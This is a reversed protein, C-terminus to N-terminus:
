PGSMWCSILTIVTHLVPYECGTKLTRAMATSVFNCNPCKAVLEWSLQLTKCECSQWKHDEKGAKLLCLRLPLQWSLDWTVPSDEMGTNRSVTRHRGQRPSGASVPVCQREKRTRATSVHVCRPRGKPERCQCTHVAVGEKGAGGQLQMCRYECCDRKGLERQRSYVPVAIPITPNTSSLLLIVHHWMKHSCWKAITIRTGIAMTVWPSCVHVYGYIIGPIRQISCPRAKYIFLASVFIIYYLYQRCNHLVAIRNWLFLVWTNKSKCITTHTHDWASQLVKQPILDSANCCMSKQISDPIM